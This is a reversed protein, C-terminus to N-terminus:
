RFLNGGRLDGQIWQPILLLVGLCFEYFVTHCGLCWCIFSDTFLAEKLPFDDPNQTVQRAGSHLYHFFHDQLQLTFTFILHHNTVYCGGNLAM